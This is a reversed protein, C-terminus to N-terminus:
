VREFTPLLYRPVQYTSTGKKSHYHFPARQSLGPAPSPLESRFPPVSSRCKPDRGSVSPRHPTAALSGGWWLPVSHNHRTFGWAREACCGSHARDLRQVEGCSGGNMQISRLRTGRDRSRRADNTTPDMRAWTGQEALKVRVTSSLGWGAAIPFSM